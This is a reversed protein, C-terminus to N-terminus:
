GPKLALAINVSGTLYGQLDLSVYYFGVEKFGSEATPSPM